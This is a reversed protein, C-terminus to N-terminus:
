ELIEIFMNNRLEERELLPLLDELPRSAMTGDSKIYSGLKPFLHKAPDTIVEIIEPKKNNLVESIANRVSENNAIVRHSIGYATAIRDLPPISVGTEASSAVYRNEFYSEQTVRIAHYGNNQLVFIKVPLQHHAITQLEQINLQFGGDGVVTIAMKRSLAMSAGIASPIGFGMSAMGKAHFVRQGSKPKFVQGSVTFCTGSSGL